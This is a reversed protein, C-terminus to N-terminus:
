ERKTPRLPVAARERVPRFASRSNLNDAEVPGGASREATDGDSVNDAAPSFIAM